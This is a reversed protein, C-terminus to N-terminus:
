LLALQEVDLTESPMQADPLVYVTVPVGSDVIEELVLDRVMPWDAGGQGTGIPPMHVEAGKQKALQAVRRLAKRLALIRLRRKGVRPGFGGQALMSAIWVGDAATAVHVDGFGREEFPWRAYDDAAQPFGNILARAFGQGGWRQGKDNVIHAIIVPTEARPTSADGRVYHIGGHTEVSDAPMLLGVVRPFRDGPYPPVGVAQVRLETGGWKEIAHDSYGVATCRALVTDSLEEGARVPSQWNRSAVVYDIRFTPTDEVRAAAFVCAQTDALRVVRRLLAETSVGFRKRQDLLRVLSLDQTEHIPLAGMPMLLEAAAINCLMELQWDDPRRDAADRYRTREAYDDFLLHGIEHAISFKVRAPRRSPNFEIRPKDGAAVLRADDLDQMAVVEVGMLDALQFSDYPPGEWGKEMAALSLERSANEVWGIPDDTGESELTRVVSPHTWHITM